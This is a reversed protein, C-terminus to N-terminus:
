HYQVVVNSFDETGLVSELLKNKEIDEVVNTYKPKWGLVKQAKTNNMFASKGSIGWQVKESKVVEVGLKKGVAEYFEGHKVMSGNSGNFAQGKVDKAPAELVKLYLDALDELHVHAWGVEPAPKYTLRRNPVDIKDIAGPFLGSTQHGHSYTFGARVSSGIVGYHQLVMRETLVYKQIPEYKFEDLMASEAQLEGPSDCYGLAGGTMIFRKTNLEASSKALTELMAVIPARLAAFDEWVVAFNIVADCTEVADLYLEPKLVDGQILEAGHGQIKICDAKSPDRVFAVVSHGSECLKKVVVSGVNGAGGSVFVRM